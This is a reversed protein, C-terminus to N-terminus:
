DWVQNFESDLVAGDEADVWVVCATHWSAARVGDREEFTVKYAKRGSYTLPGSVDLDDTSEPLAVINGGLVVDEQEIVSLAIDRAEDESIPYGVSRTQESNGGSGEGWRCLGCAMTMGALILVFILWRNM